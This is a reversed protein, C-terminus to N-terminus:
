LRGSHPANLVNASLEQTPGIRHAASGEGPEGKRVKAM